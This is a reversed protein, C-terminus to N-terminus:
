NCEGSFGVLHPSDALNWGSCALRGPFQKTEVPFVCWSLWFDIAYMNHSICCHLEAMQHHNSLDLKTIDDLAALNEAPNAPVVCCRM